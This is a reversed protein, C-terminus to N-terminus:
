PALSNRLLSDFLTGDDEEALGEVNVDYWLAEIRPSLPGLTKDVSVRTIQPFRGDVKTMALPRRLSYHREYLRSDAESYGSAKLGADYDQKAAHGRFHTERLREATARLSISEGLGQPGLLISVLYLQSGASPLLQELSNITHVRRSATTTKVELELNGLRFDHPQRQPGVWAQIAKDGFIKVLRELFLLEGLLGVQRETSLAGVQALLDSFCVLEDVIADVVSTKAESLRETVALLFYYFQQFLSSASTSVEIYEKGGRRVTNVTISRLHTLEPPLEISQPLEALLGITHQAGDSFLQIDPHSSVRHARQEGSVLITAVFNPWSLHKIVTM